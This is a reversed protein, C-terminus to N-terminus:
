AITKTAAAAAITKAVAGPAQSTAIVPASVPAAIGWSTFTAGDWKFNRYRNSGFFLHNSEVFDLLEQPNRADSNIKTPTWATDFSYIDSGFQAIVQKVGSNANQYQRFHVPFGAIAMATLAVPLRMKEVGGSSSPIVNLSDTAYEPSSNVFSSWVDVGKFRRVTQTELNRPM